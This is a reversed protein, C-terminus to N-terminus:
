NSRTLVRARIYLSTIFARTEFSICRVDIVGLLAYQVTCLLFAWRYTFVVLAETGLAEYPTSLVALVNIFTQVAAILVAFVCKSTKHAGASISKDQFILDSAHFCLATLILDGCSGGDDSKNFWGGTIVCHLAGRHRRAANEPHPNQDHHGHRHRYKHYPKINHFTLLASLLVGTLLRSNRHVVTLTLDLGSCCHAGFEVVSDPYHM